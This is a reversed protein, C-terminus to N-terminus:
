KLVGNACIMIEGRDKFEEGATTRGRIEWVAEDDNWVASEVRHGLKVDKLIDAEVAWDKLYKCVESGAAQFKSWKPNRHFTWQYTHSPSDIELGPYRNEYWTGGVDANKEYVIFTVDILQRAAKYAALLGCAGAGIIILRLPRRSHVPQEAIKFNPNFSRYWNNPHSEREERTREDQIRPFQDSPM